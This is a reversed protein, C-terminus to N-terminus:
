ELNRARSLATVISDIGARMQSSPKGSANTMISFTVDRGDATRLYGSLSNVNSITGTKAAVRAELGKLRNSLTGGRMGPTPLAARYAPGWSSTRAHELLQVISQPSLLNQASLGSADTLSFAASDIKVVDILYRREVRLGARWTGGDGKLYGLTKLLQEAIWNQSPQLIGAIIRHLPPSSITMIPRAVPLVAAEARDYVIRITGTVEIQKRNLAAVLAQAAYQEPLPQAIWSSDAGNAAISGTVLLTDPWAQYDVDISANAGATDTAVKSAVPAPAFGNEFRVVNADVIMRVAAEGVAFASTPAAYYWPLDGIEWSSHIRDRTFASADIIVDGAIRRIGKVALSDAISDLVGLDSGFYRASWTPDGTGRIILARPATDGPAGAVLIPTEYRWDPGLLGMAVTTVVLKTNSAPVFHKMYNHGYLQQNRGQDWLEIGWHAERLGFHVISDAVTVYEPSKIRPAPAEVTRACAGALSSFLLLPAAAKSFNM